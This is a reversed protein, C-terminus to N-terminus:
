GFVISSGGRIKEPARPSQTNTNSNSTCTPDNYVFRSASSTLAYGMNNLMTNVRPPPAAFVEERGNVKGSGNGSSSSSPLTCRPSNDEEQLRPSHNNNMLSGGGVARRKDCGPTPEFTMMRQAATRYPDSSAIGRLLCPTDEPAYVNKAKDFYKIQAVDYDDRPKGGPSNVAAQKKKARKAVLGAWDSAPDDPLYVENWTGPVVAISSTKETPQVTALARSTRYDCDELKYLNLQKQLVPIPKKTFTPHLRSEHQEREGNTFERFIFRDKTTM